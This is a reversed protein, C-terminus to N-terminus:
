NFNKANKNDAVNKSNSVLEPLEIEHFTYSLTISKVYKAEKDIVIDPDVYFSVPMRVTEGPKIVQEEFCFCEIKNFYSGASFPVVNFSAQGAVLSDSPNHAEYFILTTEGIKIDVERQVPKVEWSMGREVSADFRINIEKELIVESNQSITTPTGGYGTVRCFWNYFPVSAFSASGM